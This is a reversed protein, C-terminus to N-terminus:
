LAQRPCTPFELCPQPFQVKTVFTVSITFLLLVATDKELLIKSHALLLLTLFLIRVIFNSWDSSTQRDNDNNSDNKGDDENGDTAAVAAMMQNRTDKFKYDNM